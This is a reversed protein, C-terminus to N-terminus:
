RRWTPKKQRARPHRAAQLAGDDDEMVAGPIADILEVVIAEAHSPRAPRVAEEDDSDRPRLSRFQSAAALEYKVPQGERIRPSDGDAGLATVHFFIDTGSDPRIFGFGKDPLFRVITGYRM